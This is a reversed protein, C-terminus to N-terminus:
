LPSHHHRMIDVKAENTLPKFVICHALFDPPKTESEVIWGYNGDYWCKWEGMVENFRKVVYDESPSPMMYRRIDSNPWVWKM